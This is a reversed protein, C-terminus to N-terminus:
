YQLALQIKLSDFSLLTFPLYLSRNPYRSLLCNSRHLHCYDVYNNAPLLEEVSISDLRMECLEELSHVAFGVCIRHLYKLQVQYTRLPSTRRAIRHHCYHRTSTIIHM